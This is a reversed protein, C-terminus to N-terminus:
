YTNLNYWSFMQDVTHLKYDEERHGSWFSDIEWYEKIKGMHEFLLGNHSDTQIFSSLQSELMDSDDDLILYKTIEPHKSLWLQIEDGRCRTGKKIVHLERGMPTRYDEHIYEGFISKWYEANHNMRWTSSIVIKIDAKKCVWRLFNVTYIDLNFWGSRISTVVGDIDLFIIKM